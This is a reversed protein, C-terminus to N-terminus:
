EKGILERLCEYATNHTNRDVREIMSFIDEIIDTRKRIIELDEVKRRRCEQIIAFVHPCALVEKLFILM